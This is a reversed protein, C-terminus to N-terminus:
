LKINRYLKAAVGSFRTAGAAKQRKERFDRQIIGSPNEVTDSGSSASSRSREEFLFLGKNLFLIYDYCFILLERCSVGGVVGWGALSLRCLSNEAVRKDM